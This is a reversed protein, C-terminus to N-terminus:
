NFRKARLEQKEKESLADLGFREKRAKIKEAEEPDIQAEERARKKASGAEAKAEKGNFLNGKQVKGFKAEREAKKEADLKKQADDAGKGVGFREERARKKDTELNKDPLGFREARSKRKEADVDANPVGFREARAKKKDTETEATEIGFREARLKKKEEDTMGPVSPSKKPSGIAAVTTLSPDVDSAKQDFQLLRTILVDKDGADSVGRKGCEKKLAEVTMKDYNTEATM